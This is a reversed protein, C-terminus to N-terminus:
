AQFARFVPRAPFEPSGRFGQTVQDVRFEPNAQIVQFAPYERFALSESGPSARFGRSELFVPIAELLASVAGPILEASNASEIPMLDTPHRQFSKVTIASFREGTVGLSRGAQLEFV